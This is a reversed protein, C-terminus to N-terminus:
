ERVGLRYGVLKQLESLVFRLESRESWWRAPNSRDYRSAKVMIRTPRGEFEREFAFRVRRTHYRSTIVIIRQWSSAAPFERLAAAEHATNDVSGPLITVVGAPVGLQVMANRVLEGETPFSIGQSRLKMEMEDVRGPSILIRPAIGERYLDVAELWREVRAGAVVFIADAREIPTETVLYRGAFPLFAALAVACVIPLTLVVRLLVRRAQAFRTSAM